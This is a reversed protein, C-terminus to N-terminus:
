NIFLPSKEFAKNLPVAALHISCYDHKTLYTTRILYFITKGRYGEQIGRYPQNM